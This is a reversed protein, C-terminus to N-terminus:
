DKEIARASRSAKTLVGATLANEAQSSVDLEYKKFLKM